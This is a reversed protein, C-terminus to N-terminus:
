VAGVIVSMLALTGAIMRQTARPLEGAILLNGHHPLNPLSRREYRLDNATRLFVRAHEIDEVALRAVGYPNLPLDRSSRQSRAAEVITTDDEWNVSIEFWGDSWDRSGQPPDPEFAGGHVTPGRRPDEVIWDRKRLGRLCSPPYSEGPRGGDM